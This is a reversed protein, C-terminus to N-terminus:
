KRQDSESSTVISVGMMVKVSELDRICRYVKEEGASKREITTQFTFDKPQRDM